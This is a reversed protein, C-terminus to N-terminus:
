QTRAQVFNEIHETSMAGVCRDRTGSILDDCVITPTALVQYQEAVAPFKEVDFVAIHYARECAHLARRLVLEIREAEQAGRFFLVFIVEPADAPM